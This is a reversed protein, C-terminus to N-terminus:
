SPAEHPRKTTCRHTKRPEPEARERQDGRRTPVGSRGSDRRVVDDATADRHSLRRDRWVTEDDGGSVEDELAVGKTHDDAAHQSWGPVAAGHELCAEVARRDVVPDFPPTEAEVDFTPPNTEGDVVEVEDFTEPTGDNPDFSRPSRAVALDVDMALEVERGHVSHDTDM